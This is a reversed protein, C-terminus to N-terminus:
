RFIGYAAAVFATAGAIDIIYHIRLFILMLITFISFTYVIIRLEPECFLMSMISISTHGSFFTESRAGESWYLARNFTSKDFRGEPVPSHYFLNLFTKSMYVLFFTNISTDSHLFSWFVVGISLNISMFMLYTLIKLIIPNTKLFSNIPATLTHSLDSIHSQIAINQDYLDSRQNIERRLNSNYQFIYNQIQPNHKSFIVQLLQKEDLGSRSNFNNYHLAKFSRSIFKSFILM